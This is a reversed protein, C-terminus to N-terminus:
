TPRRQQFKLVEAAEVAEPVGQLLIQAATPQEPEVPAPFPRQPFVDHDGCWDKPGTFPQLPTLGNQTQHITPPHRRCVGIDAPLGPAGLSWYGCTECLWEVKTTM